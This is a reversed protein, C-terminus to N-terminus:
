GDHTEGGGEQGGDESGLGRGGDFRRL